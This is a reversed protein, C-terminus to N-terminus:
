IENNEIDNKIAVLTRHIERNYEEISLTPSISMLKEVIFSYFKNENEIRRCIQTIREKQMFDSEDHADEWCRKVEKLYDRIHLTCDDYISEVLDPNKVNKLAHSIFDAIIDAKWEQTLESM